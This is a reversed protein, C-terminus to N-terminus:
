NGLWEKCNKLWDDTSGDACRCAATPAESSHADTDKDVLCALAADNLVFEKQLEPEIKDQCFRSREPLTNVYKEVAKKYSSCCGAFSIMLSGLFAALMIFRCNVINM